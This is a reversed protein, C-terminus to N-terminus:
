MILQRDATGLIHSRYKGSDDTQWETVNVWCEITYDSSGNHLFNFSTKIVLQCYHITTVM